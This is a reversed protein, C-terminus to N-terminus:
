GNSIIEVHRKSLHCPPILAGRWKEASIQHTRGYVKVTERSLGHRKYDYSGCLKQDCGLVM